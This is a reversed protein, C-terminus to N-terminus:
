APVVRGELLAITALDYYETIAVLLGGSFQWRSAIPLVFHVGNRRSTMDLKATMWVVDGEAVLEVVEYHHTDYEAAIMAMGVMAETKGSHTGGFRFIEKPANSMWVIDPHLLATVPAFDGAGYAALVRRMAEKNSEASL